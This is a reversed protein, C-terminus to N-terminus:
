ALACGNFTKITNFREICSIFRKLWTTDNQIVNIQQCMGNIYVVLTLSSAQRHDSMSYNYTYETQDGCLRGDYPFNCAALQKFGHYRMHGWEFYLRFQWNRKDATSTWACVNVYRGSNPVHMRKCMRCTYLM